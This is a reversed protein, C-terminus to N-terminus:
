KACLIGDGMTLFQAFGIEDNFWLWPMRSPAYLYSTNRSEKSRKTGKPYFLADEM